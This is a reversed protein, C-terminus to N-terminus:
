DQNSDRPEKAWATCIKWQTPSRSYETQTMALVSRILALFIESMSDVFARQCSKLSVRTGRECVTSSLLLLLGLLAPDLQLEVTRRWLAV